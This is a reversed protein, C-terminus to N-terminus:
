KFGKLLTRLELLVRELDGAPGARILARAAAACVRVLGQGIM